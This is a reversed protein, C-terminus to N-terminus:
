VQGVAQQAQMQEALTAAVITAMAGAVASTALAGLGPNVEKAIATGATGWGENTQVGPGNHNAAAPGGAGPARGGPRTATAGTLIAGQASQRGVRSAPQQNTGWSNGWNPGLSVWKCNCSLM